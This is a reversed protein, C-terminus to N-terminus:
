VKNQQAARKRRWKRTRTKTFCPHLPCMEKFAVPDSVRIVADPRGGVAEGLLLDTVDEVDVYPRDIDESTFDDDGGDKEAEASAASADMKAKLDAFFNRVSESADRVKDNLSAVGQMVEGLAGAVAPDGRLTAQLAKGEEEGITGLYAQVREADSLPVDEGREKGAAISSVFKRRKGGGMAVYDGFFDLLDTKTMVQLAAVVDRSQTFHLLGLSIYNALRSAEQKMTQDAEEYKAVVASVNDRFTEDTLTSLSGGEEGFTRLFREVRSDIADADVSSSQVIIRLSWIGRVQVADSHM